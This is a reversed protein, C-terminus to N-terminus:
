VFVYFLSLSHTSCVMDAAATTITSIVSDVGRKAVKFM